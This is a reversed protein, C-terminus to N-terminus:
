MIPKPHNAWKHTTCYKIKTGIPTDYIDDIREYGQVIIKIIENSNDDSDSEYQSQEDDENEGDDDYDEEDEDSDNIPGDTEHDSSSPEFKKKLPKARIIQVKTQTQVTSQIPQPPEVTSNVTSNVSLREMAEDKAIYSILQLEKKQRIFLNKIQNELVGMLKSFIEMNNPTSNTISSTVDNFTTDTTSGVVDLTSDLPLLNTGNIFSGAIKVRACDFIESIEEMDSLNKEMLDITWTYTKIRERCNFTLSLAHDTQEISLDYGVQKNHCVKFIDELEALTFNNVIQSWETTSLIKQYFKTTPKSYAIILLNDVSLFERYIYTEGFTNINSM